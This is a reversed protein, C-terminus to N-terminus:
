TTNSIFNQKYFVLLPSSVFSSLTTSQTHCITLVIGGLIRTSGGKDLQATSVSIHYIQAINSTISAVYLLAGSAPSM